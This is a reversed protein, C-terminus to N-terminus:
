AWRATAAKRASESRESATVLRNTKRARASAIIKWARKRCSPCSELHSLDSHSM